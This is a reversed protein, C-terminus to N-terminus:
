LYTKNNSIYPGQKIEIIKSDKLFDLGHGMNPMVLTDGKKLIDSKTKKNGEYYNIRVKGSEIHLIEATKTKHVHPAIKEGKKRIIIGIQLPHEPSSVFFTGHKKFEKGIIM